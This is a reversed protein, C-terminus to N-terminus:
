PSFTRSLVVLPTTYREHNVTVIVEKTDTRSTSVAKNDDVYQVVVDVSFPVVAEGAQFQIVETEMQHFDDLDTAASYSKGTEFPLSTLNDVSFNDPHVGVTASDFEKSGIHEMVELAVGSAMIEFEDHIMDNYTNIMARQQNIAFLTAMMIAFISFLTQTM